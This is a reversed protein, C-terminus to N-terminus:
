VRLLVSQITTVLSLQKDTDVAANCAVTDKHSDLGECARLKCLHPDHKSARGAYTHVCVYQSSRSASPLLPGCFGAHHLLRTVQQMRLLEAVRAELSSRQAGGDALRARAGAHSAEADELRKRKREIAERGPLRGVSQLEAAPAPALDPM